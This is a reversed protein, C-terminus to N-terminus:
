LEIGKCARALCRDCPYHDFSKLFNRDTADLVKPLIVTEGHGCTSKVYYGALDPNEALYKKTNM